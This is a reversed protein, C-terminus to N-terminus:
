FNVNPSLNLGFGKELVMSFLQEQLVYEQIHRLDGPFILSHLAKQLLAACIEVHWFWQMQSMLNAHNWTYLCSVMSGPERVEQRIIM